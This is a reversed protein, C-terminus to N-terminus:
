SRGAVYGASDIVSSFTIYFNSFYGSHHGKDSHLVNTRVSNYPRHALVIPSSPDNEAEQPEWVGSSRFRNVQFRARKIVDVTWGRM